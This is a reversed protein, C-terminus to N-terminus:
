FWRLSLSNMDLLFVGDVLPELIIRGPVKVSHSKWSSVLSIETEQPDRNTKFRPSFIVLAFWEESAEGLAEKIM